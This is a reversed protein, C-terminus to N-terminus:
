AVASLSQGLSNVTAQFPYPNIGGFIGSTVGPYRWGGNSLGRWTVRQEGDIEVEHPAEEIYISNFFWHNQVVNGPVIAAQRFNPLFAVNRIYRQPWIAITPGPFQYIIQDSDWCAQEVEIECVGIGPLQTESPYNKWENGTAATWTSGRVAGPLGESNTGKIAPARPTIRVRKFRFISGGSLNSLPGGLGMILRAQSGVIQM